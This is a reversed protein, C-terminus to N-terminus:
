FASFDGDLLAQYDEPTNVNWLPAPDAISVELCADKHRDRVLPGSQDGGARLLESKFLAPFFVPSCPAGNYVPVVINDPGAKALIKAITEPNLLPQDGQLFLFGDGGAQALGLRLSSAKGRAPNPNEVVTVVPPVCIEALTQARSVLIVSSFVGEEKLRLALDLVHRLLAKGKYPLLLKNRGMRSSLGAALIVADIRM